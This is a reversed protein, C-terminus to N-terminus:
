WLGKKEWEPDFGSSANAVAMYDAYAEALLVPPVDNIDIANGNKGQKKSFYLNYLVVPINEEPVYSGSFEINIYLELESFYKYYGYFCAGDEIDDRKYGQKILINRITFSDTLWGKRDDIINEEVHSVDPLSHNFQTLLLPVKYDALHKQWTKVVENTLLASHAVTVDNEKNLTIEDDNLDILSGDETPRFSKIIVGSENVELWVLHQILRNMIPHNYFYEQWELVSWRRQLCMAEYLRTIQLEILQKLEKKSNSFQKKAEKVLTEDESKRAEPLTKIEKGEANKLVFKFKDDLTATFIREGYDLSLVGSEDLGATPITRDALEDATWQKQEAIQNILLKAKKQVSPTRYRRAISLLFQIILPDDSVAISELMAEIQGRRIQYNKIYNKIISVATNGQIGGILSLIGKSKIASGILRSLVEQKIMEFAESLTMNEYQGYYEPYRKAYNLYDKWRQKANLNAEIEAEKLTPTLTDQKIFAQLIFVGLEHQSKISLLRTYIILLPNAPEKLKIALWIWWTIIQPDVVKGNQWTLAPILSEDLWKADAPKKGTLGKQADDLLKTPTLYQNINEGLSELAALLTAQVSESKEKNLAHNLAKISSKQGLKVLWKAALIRQAQKTSILVEEVRYHIDPLMSLAKQALLRLSQTEGLALELLYTVYKALLKPFFTLIKIGREKEFFYDSNQLEQNPLLGLAEDLYVSNEAFFPWVLNPDVETTTEYYYNMLFAAAITRKADPVYDIKNMVEVLQRLDTRLLIEHHSFSLGLYFSNPQPHCIKEARLLHYLNFELLSSLRGKNLIVEYILKNKIDAQDIDGKGNLCDFIADLDTVTITKLQAYRQQESTIKYGYEQNYQIEQEAKKQQQVLIEQYNQQLIDRAKSPLNVEVISEFPPIILEIEQQKADENGSLRSLAGEITKIVTKNTQRTLAEELIKRNVSLRVLLNIAHCRQKPTGQELLVQLEAQIIDIPLSLLLTTALESIAKINSTSQKVLLDIVDQKLKDQNAIYQLQQLQGVRSLDQEPLTKFWELHEYIYPLLGNIMFVYYFCKLYSKPTQQRDFIAFLLQKGLGKQEIELLQHLQQVSWNQRELIIQEASQNYSFLTSVLGDLFLYLFWLPLNPTIVDINKQESYVRSQRMNEIYTAALVKGFRIIQEPTYNDTWQQYFLARAKIPQKKETFYYIINTAGPFGLRGYVRKEGNYTQSLQNLDELVLPDQGQLIYKCIREPILKDLGRLIEFCALLNHENSEVNDKVM